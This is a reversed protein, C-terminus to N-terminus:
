RPSGLNPGVFYVVSCILLLLVADEPFLLPLVTLPILTSAQIV